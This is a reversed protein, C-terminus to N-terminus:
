LSKLMLHNVAQWIAMVELIHKKNFKQQNNWGGLSNTLGLIDRFLSGSINECMRNEFTQGELQMKLHKNPTIGDNHVERYDTYIYRSWDARASIM